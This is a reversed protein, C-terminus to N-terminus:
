VPFYFSLLRSLGSTLATSRARTCRCPHSERGAGPWRQSYRGECSRWGPRRRSWRRATSQWERGPPSGTRGRDDPHGNEEPENPRPGGQQSYERDCAGEDGIQDGEGKVDNVARTEGCVEPHTQADAEQKGNGERQGVPSDGGKLPTEGPWHRTACADSRRRRLGSRTASDRTWGCKRNLVRLEIEASTRSSGAWASRVM